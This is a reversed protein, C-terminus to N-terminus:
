FLELQRPRSAALAEDWQRELLGERIAGLYPSARRIRVEGRWHRRRAHSLFLHEPARTLGVFFLRRGETVGVGGAAIRPYSKGDQGSRDM